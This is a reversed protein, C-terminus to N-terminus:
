QALRTRVFSRPSVGFEQRFAYIFASASAYGLSLAVQTVDRDGQLLEVARFLRVRRQWSRFSMGTEAEFRRSLTRLSMHLTKSWEVLTRPDAPNQHLAECLRIMPASTPWPLSYPLPEVRALQDLILGTVRDAYAGREATLDLEAAEIVLARLLPTVKFVIPRDMSTCVVDAAIWLSRFDAGLLSGVQHKVGAPLWAAQESSIVFSQADLVVSLTGATAYVMQAWAHAHAPFRGHPPITEARVTLPSPAVAHAPTSLESWNSFPQSM